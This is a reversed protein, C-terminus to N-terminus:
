RVTVVRVIKPGASTQEAIAVLTPGSVVLFRAGAVVGSPAAPSAGGKRIVEAVAESVDVIPLHALADLPRCVLESLAARVEDRRKWKVREERSGRSLLTQQWTKDPEASVIAALEAFSVAQDLFFPGSRFRSLQCLHGATGLADATEVALVRAYTGRSCTLRVSLKDGDFGTRVLSHVTIERAPVEVEIGRRAYYYLPKGKYKVASYAPPRQMRKGIFGELVADIQEETLEPVPKEELTEGMLDGTTTTRGLQITADYIKISEDLYQILRTAGGLAVPLVGTAFPDLTGTHGVKKIGTVARVAAVVDHSTIGEPKDVVLFSPTLSM